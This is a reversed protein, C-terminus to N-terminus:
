GPLRSTDWPNLTPGFDSTETSSGHAWADMNTKGVCIAGEDLLKQTVTSEYFPVFNELIKSSATTRLGSTCYLDKFALPIGELKRATGNAYREDSEKAAKLASEACITVFANLEKQKEIETLYAQTLAVSTIEKNKLKSLSTCITSEIM